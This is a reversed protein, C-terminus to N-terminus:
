DALPGPHMIAMMGINFPSDSKETHEVGVRWGWEGRGRGRGERTQSAQANESRSFLKKTKLQQHM